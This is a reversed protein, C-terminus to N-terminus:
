ADRQSTPPRRHLLLDVGSALFYSMGGCYDYTGTDRFSTFAEHVRISSRLFYDLPQLTHQGQQVPRYVHM